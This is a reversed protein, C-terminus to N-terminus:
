ILAVLAAAILGVTLYAIVKLAGPVGEKQERQLIKVDRVFPRTFSAQAPVEPAPIARDRPLYVPVAVLSSGTHVRVMAKWGDHVPVPDTTRYVGPGIRKLDSVVSGGGQWATVNAFHSGDLADAPTVRLDSSCVDSSWDCLSRTHRRRSSFFFFIFIHQM